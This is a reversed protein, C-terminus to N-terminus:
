SEFLAVYQGYSLGHEHAQKQIDTLTLKPPADCNLYPRIGRKSKKLCAESCTSRRKSLEPIKRGCVVCWKGKKLVKKPNICEPRNCGKQSNGTPIFSKGCYICERKRM